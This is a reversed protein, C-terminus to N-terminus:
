LRPSRSIDARVPDGRGAGCAAMKKYKSIFNSILPSNEWSRIGLRRHYKDAIEGPSATHGAARCEWESSTSAVKRNFM